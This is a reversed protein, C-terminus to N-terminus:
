EVFVVDIRAETDAQLSAGVMEALETADWNTMRVCGHSQNSFLQAPEPTGHLGYTPTDLDIWVSGVPGNPGPPLTLFEANDGQQFNVNPNYSYTPNMAVARIYHTGTPSPTSDSGVTVPYDVIVRGARDIAQMRGTSKDVVIHAVLTDFTTRPKATDVITIVAGSQWNTDANLSRLFDEDMHFREALSEAISTFGIHSRRALEAYDSPLPGASLSVIDEDILVYRATIAGSRSGGLAQWVDNDILGDIPLGFKAEFGRLASTSMGGSYGDIVGPSVGARDLLVQLKVTLASQGDPLAGGEYTVADIEAATPPEDPTVPTQDLLVALQEEDLIPVTGMEQSFLSTGTVSCLTTALFAMAFIRNM